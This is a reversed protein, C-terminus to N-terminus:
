DPGIHSKPINPLKAWMLRLLTKPASRKKNRVTEKLSVSVKVFLNLMKQCSGSISGDMKSKRILKVPGTNYVKQHVFMLKDRDKLRLMEM